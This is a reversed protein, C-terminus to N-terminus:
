NGKCLLAAQAEAMQQEINETANNMTNENMNEEKNEETATANENNLEEANDITANTNENNQMM